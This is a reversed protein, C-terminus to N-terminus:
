NSSGGILQLVAAYMYTSQTSAVIFIKGDSSKYRDSDRLNFWVVSGTTSGIASSGTIGHLPVAVSVPATATSYVTSGSSVAYGLSGAWKSSGPEIFVSGNASSSANTILIVTEVTDGAQFYAGSSTVPLWNIAGGQTGGAIFTSPVITTSQATSGM